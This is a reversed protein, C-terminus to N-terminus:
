NSLQCVSTDGYNLYEDTLGLESAEARIKNVADLHRNDSHYIEKM